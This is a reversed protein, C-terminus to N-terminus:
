LINPQKGVNIEELYTIIEKVANNAGLCREALVKKKQKVCGRM